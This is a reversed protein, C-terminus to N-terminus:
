ASDTNFNTLQTILSLPNLLINCAPQKNCLINQERVSETSAFIKNNVSKLLVGIEPIPILM